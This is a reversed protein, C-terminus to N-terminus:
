DRWERLRLIKENITTHNHKWGRELNKFFPNRKQLVREIENVDDLEVPCICFFTLPARTNDLYHLRWYLNKTEVLQVYNEFVSNVIVLVIGM